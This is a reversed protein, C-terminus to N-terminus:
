GIKIGFGTIYLDLSTMLGYQDRWFMWVKGTKTAVNGNVWSSYDVGCALRDMSDIVYYQSLREACDGRTAFSPGTEFLHSFNFQYDLHSAINAFIARDEFSNSGGTSAFPNFGLHMTYSGTAGVASFTMSGYGHITFKVATGATLAAAVAAQKTTDYGFTADLDSTIDKYANSALNSMTYHLPSAPESWVIAM